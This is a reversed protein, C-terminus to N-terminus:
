IIKGGNMIFRIMPSWPKAENGWWNTKDNKTKGSEDEQKDSLVSSADPKIEEGGVKGAMIGERKEISEIARNGTQTHYETKLYGFVQKLLLLDIFFTLFIYTHSKFGLRAITM